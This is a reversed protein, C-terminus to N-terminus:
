ASRDDRFGARTFPGDSSQQDMRYLGYAVFPLVLMVVLALTTGLPLGFFSM